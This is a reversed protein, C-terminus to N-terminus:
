IANRQRVLAPVGCNFFAFVLFVNESILQVGESWSEPDAYTHAFVGMRALPRVETQAYETYALRIKEHKLCASVIACAQVLHM